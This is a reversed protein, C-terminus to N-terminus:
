LGNIKNIASVVPDLSEKVRNRLGKKILVKEDANYYQKSSKYNLVQSLLDSKM